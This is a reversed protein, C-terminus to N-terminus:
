PQKALSTCQEVTEIYQELLIGIFFKAVREHEMRRKFVTDYIPNAIIM